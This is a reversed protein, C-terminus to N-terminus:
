RARNKKRRWNNMTKDEDEFVCLCHIIYQVAVRGVKNAYYLTPVIFM